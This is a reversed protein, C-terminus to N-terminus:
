ARSKRRLSKRLKKLKHKNMKKKRKKKVSDAWITRVDDSEVEVAEFVGLRDFGAPSIPNFCFAFPFNPFIPFPSPSEANHFSTPGLQAVPDESFEPKPPALHSHHSILSATPKPFLHSKLSAATRLAPANKALKHVFSAM